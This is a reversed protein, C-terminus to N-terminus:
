NSTNRQFVVGDRNPASSISAHKTTIDVTGPVIAVIPIALEAVVVAEDEPLQQQVVTAQHNQLRDDKASVIVAVKVDASM